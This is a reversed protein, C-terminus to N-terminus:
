FVSAKELQGNANALDTADLKRTSPRFFKCLGRNSTEVFDCLENILPSDFQQRLKSVATPYSLGSRFLIRFAEKLQQRDNSEISARRLGVVNLGMLLNTTSSQTMCFPPVDKAAASGGSMMVLRGVRVFQHISCNGSIFARDGIQVHGAALAGNAMIVQNGIKCNHGIHSNAMLLCGTGVETSSGAQTGRHVTVGERLVCDNGIKVYSVENKFSLDQPLDGLVAGAHVRCRQGLTTYPLITVRPGIQCGDGLETDRAVYSFPGVEVQNGLKAGPEIVATPHIAM